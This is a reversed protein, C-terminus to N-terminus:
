GTPSAKTPLGKSSASVKETEHSHCFPCLLRDIRAHGHEVAAGDLV